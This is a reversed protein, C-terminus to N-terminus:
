GSNQRATRTEATSGSCQLFFIGKSKPHKKAVFNALKALTKTPGIGICVPIGAQKRVIERIACSRERIDDFGTLDLFSEDVSYEEHVPSFDALMCKVRNSLDSYLPFNGSFAMVDRYKHLGKVKFWPEGMRIGLRKAEDSRSIVCGDNSSLVVIPRGDLDPRFVRECSVFFNNCDVLAICQEM